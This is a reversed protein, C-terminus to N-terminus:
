AALPDEGYQNTGATGRAGMLYILVLLNLTPIFILISWWGDKGLDHFRRITLMVTALEYIILLIGLSEDSADSVICLLMFVGFIALSRLIYPKRNLRGEYSFYDNKIQDLLDNGKQQSSTEGIPERRPVTREENFIPAGCKPCFKKEGTLPAGCRACFKAM